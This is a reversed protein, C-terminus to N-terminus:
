FGRGKAVLARMANLEDDSPQPLELVKNHAVLQRHVSLLTSKATELVERWRPKLPDEGFDEAVEGVVIEVERIDLSRIAIASMMRGELGEIMNALSAGEEPAATSRQLPTRRIAYRLNALTKRDAGVQAWREDPLVDYGGAWAHYTKTERGLWADLSGSRVRLKKGAGRADLKGDAVAQRIESEAERKLRAWVDDKIVLEGGLSHMDDDAWARRYEALEHAMTAVPLFAGAQTEALRRHESQTISQRAVVSAAFDIEAQNVGWLLLSFWWGCLLELKEVEKEIVTIMFAIQCNCANMLDIYRNFEQTQSAPMTSRWLPDEPTMDKLSRLSLVAREKATLAPMLKTLRADLSM